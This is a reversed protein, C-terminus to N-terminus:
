QILHKTQESPHVQPLLINYGVVRDIPFAYFLWTPQTECKEAWNVIQISYLYESLIIRSFRSYTLWLNLLQTPSVTGAPYLQPSHHISLPLCKYTPYLSEALIHRSESIAGVAPHFELLLSNRNGVTPKAALYLRSSIDSSHNTHNLSPSHNLFSMLMRPQCPLHNSTTSAAPM